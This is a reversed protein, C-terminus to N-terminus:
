VLAEPGHRSTVPFCMAAALGADRAAEARPFNPDLRVDALWDPRGSQWVRGPLGVGIPLTLAETTAAFGALPPSGDHWVAACRLRDADDDPVWAAGLVWGLTTGVAALLGALLEDASEGTAVLDAVAHELALLRDADLAGDSTDPGDAGGQGGQVLNDHM